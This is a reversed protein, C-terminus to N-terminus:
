ALLSNKQKSDVLQKRENIFSAANKLYEIIETESMGPILKHRDQEQLFWKINDKDIEGDFLITLQEQKIWERLQDDNEFIEKSSKLNIFNLYYNLINLVDSSM